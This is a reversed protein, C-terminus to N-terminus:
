MYHRPANHPHIRPRLRRHLPCRSEFSRFSRPFKSLWDTPPPIGTIWPLEKRHPPFPAPHLLVQLFYPSRCPSCDPAPHRRFQLLLRLVFLRVLCRVLCNLHPALFRSWHRFRHSQHFLHFLHIWWDYPFRLCWLLLVPFRSCPRSHFLLLLQNKWVPSRGYLREALQDPRHSSYLFHLPVPIWVLVPILVLAPSRRVMLCLAHCNRPLFM